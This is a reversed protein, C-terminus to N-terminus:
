FKAAAAAGNGSHPHLFLNRELLKYIKNIKKPTRLVLDMKNQSDSNDDSKFNFKVACLNM